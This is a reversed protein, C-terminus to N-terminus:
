RTGRMIRVEPRYTVRVLLDGRGGRAKPLGEGPVRLLEGRNVRPPVEIRLQQGTPGAIMERGGGAARKASIRLDCQLDTGRAKFRFGPLVRLRLIVFGGEFPAARPWRLRAGPSTNPAIDVQYTEPGDSQAPDRVEVSVSTGRIFEEIRLRVDQSINREIKGVQRTKVSQRARQNLEHDYDRRRKADSLIEHAANLAQAQAIAERSGPNVDPHHRKVLARYAARIQALSCQRDLGLKAYHDPLPSEM